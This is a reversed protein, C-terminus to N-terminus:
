LLLDAPRGGERRGPLLQHDDFLRSDAQGASVLATVDSPVVYHHGDVTYEHFTIGARGRGPTVADDGGPGVQVRDGTILTVRHAQQGAPAAAPASTWGQPPAGAPTSTWGQPPAGAPTSTWGQPPPAAPTSTWGQPPPSAAPAQAAAPPLLSLGLALPLLLPM